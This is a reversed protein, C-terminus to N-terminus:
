TSQIPGTAVVSSDAEMDAELLQRLEKAVAAVSSLDQQHSRVMDQFSQLDREAISRPKRRRPHVEDEDVLEEALSVGAAARIAANKDRARKLTDRTFARKKEGDFGDARQQAIQLDAAVQYMNGRAITQRLALPELATLSAIELRLKAVTWMAVKGVVRRQWVLQVTMADTSELTMTETACATLPLETAPTSLSWVALDDPAQTCRIRITVPSGKCKPVKWIIKGNTGHTGHTLYSSSRASTLRQGSADELVMTLEPPTRMTQQIVTCTIPCLMRCDIKKRQMVQSRSHQLLLACDFDSCHMCLSYSVSSLHPAFSGHTAHVQQAFRSGAARVQQAHTPSGSAHVQHTHLGALNCGMEM